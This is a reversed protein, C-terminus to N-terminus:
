ISSKQERQENKTHNIEQVIKDLHKKLTQQYETPKPLSIFSRRAQDINDAFMTELNDKRISAVWNAQVEAILGKKAIDDIRLLKCLEGLAMCRLSQAEFRADASCHKKSSFAEM